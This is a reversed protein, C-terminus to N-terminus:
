TALHLTDTALGLAYDRNDISTSKSNWLSKYENYGNTYARKGDEIKNEAVYTEGLADYTKALRLDGKPFAKASDLADRYSAEAKAYDNSQMASFGSDFNDKWTKDDVHEAKSCGYATVCVFILLPIGYCKNM